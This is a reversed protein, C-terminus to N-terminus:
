TKTQINILRPSEKELENFLTVTNREKIVMHEELQIVKAIEIVNGVTINNHATNTKNAVYAARDLYSCIKKDIDNMLKSRKFPLVNNEATDPEPRDNARM